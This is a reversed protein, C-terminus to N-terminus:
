TRDVILESDLAREVLPKELLEQIHISTDHTIGIKGSCRVDGVAITQAFHANM